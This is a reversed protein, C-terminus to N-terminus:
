TSTPPPIRKPSITTTIITTIIAPTLNHPTAISQIQLAEPHADTLTDAGSVLPQGCVLHHCPDGSM